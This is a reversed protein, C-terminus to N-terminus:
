RVAKSSNTALSILDPFDLSCIMIVVAIGPAGCHVPSPISRLRDAARSSSRMYSLLVTISHSTYSLSLTLCHSLSVTLSHSLSLTLCHSLSVILSHSLSLTLHTLPALSHSLSLHLFTLPTLPSNHRLMSEVTMCYHLLLVIFSINLSM